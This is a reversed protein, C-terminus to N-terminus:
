LLGVIHIQIQIFDPLPTLGENGEAYILAEMEGIQKDHCKHRRSGGGRQKDPETYFDAKSFTSEV